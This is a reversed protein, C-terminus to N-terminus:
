SCKSNKFPVQSQNGASMNVLECGDTGRWNWPVWHRRRAEVPVWVCPICMFECLCICMGSM